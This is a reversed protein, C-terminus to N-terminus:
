MIFNEYDQIKLYIKNKVICKYQLDHLDNKHKGISVKLIVTVQHYSDLFMIFQFYKKTVTVVYCKPIKIVFSEKNIQM